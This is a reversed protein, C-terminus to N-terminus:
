RVLLAVPLRDLLTALSVDIVDRDTLLDHWGDGPLAVRTDGWGGRRALRVPLRTVVTAIDEGRRFAIAHEYADGTVEIPTYPAGVLEPRDRRLRAATATVLLKPDDLSALKRRREDYDVPRRNDPDVLAYSELECGQYIDAVGPMTLQLLKQSLSNSLGPARVNEAVFRNIDNMLADNAYIREIYRHVSEEFSANPETWTTALKAERNAKVLYAQLREESIPWAAVLNQWIFSRIRPRSSMLGIARQWEAVATQWEEPLELLTVLRARVDESRKTDHTSLTTMTAPWDSALQECFRHWPAPELGEWIRYLDSGVEKLALMEADRYFATDEVGKAMVPGATQMLRVSGLAHAAVWDVERGRRLESRGRTLWHAQERAREIVARAADPEEPYARYVPMEALFLEVAERLSRANLDAGAADPDALLERVVRDVESGLLTQVVLRKAAPITTFPPADGGDDDPGGEPADILVATVMNLADYGTTGACKWSRPLSEQGGLIKEVVVWKDRSAAALDDLYGGPNALGDPHDIRWGDVPGPLDLLSRHTAEFVEPLEVRVGMLTTVDFFRRYNLEDNGTRWHALRYHQEDLTLTGQAMPFEHDYYRVLEAVRDVVVEGDAVADRLPKGLVPLLIKGGQAEWDVDLWDAYPSARGHRLVDWLVPNLREPTPWAMHNPVVDIVLGLGYQECAAVLEAWGADGGLDESLRSHDVVDYGHASGPAAQLVPSCYVHSVGLDSLYPVVAAADRFDFDARLQLRYTTTPVRV